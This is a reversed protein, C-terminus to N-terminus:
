FTSAMLVELLWWGKPHLPENNPVGIELSDMGPSSTPPPWMGASQCCSRCRQGGRRCAAWTWRLFTTQLPCTFLSFFGLRREGRCGMETGETAYMSYGGITYVKNNIVELGHGDLPLPLQIHAPAQFWTDSLCNFVEVKDATASDWGGVSILVDPPKRTVGSVLETLKAKQHDPLSKFVVCTNLILLLRETTCNVDERKLVTEMDEVTLLEVVNNLKTFNACIFMKIQELTHKCLFKQGLRYREHWNVLNLTSVMFDSCIKTLLTIGYHAAMQLQEELISEKTTTAGTYALEVITSIVETSYPLCHHTEEPMMDRFDHSLSSMVITHINFVAGDESQLTRDTFKNTQQLEYLEFTAVCKVTRECYCLANRIM